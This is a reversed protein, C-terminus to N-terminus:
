EIKEIILKRIVRKFEKVIYDYDDLYLIDYMKDLQKTDFENLKM